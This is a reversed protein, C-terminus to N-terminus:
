GIRVGYLHCFDIAAFAEDTTCTIGATSASHCQDSIEVHITGDKNDEFLVSNVLSLTTYERLFKIIPNM